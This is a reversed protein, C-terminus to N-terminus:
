FKRLGAYINAPNSPDYKIVSIERTTDLQVTSWQVGGDTSKYIAKATSYMIERSNKPNIAIARVPFPNSSGIVNLTEWKTGSASGRLIGAATGVYVTGSQSPDTVVTYVEPSKGTSAFRATIDDVTTGANTTELLGRQFIGFYVNADNAADFSIGTITGDAKKINAWTLGGNTTKIIVGESTGAYLVQPNVKDIALSSIITGDAPETYVEKWEETENSRKFIKARGKFVGTGYMISSNQPNIVIAYVKDAFPVATWTEAGDKSVFVGSAETGIFITNSDAQDIAMSLINVSEISKTDSIKVKPDFTNGANISKLVTANAPNNKVTSVPSSFSCGSLFLAGALLPLAILLKKM